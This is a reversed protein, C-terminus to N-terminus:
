IAAYRSVRAELEEIKAEDIEDINGLERNAKLAELRWADGRRLFFDRARVAEDRDRRVAVLEALLDVLAARMTWEQTTIPHQHRAARIEAEREPTLRESM